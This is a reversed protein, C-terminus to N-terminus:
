WWCNCFWLFLFEWCGLFNDRTATFHTSSKPMCVSPADIETWNAYCEVYKRQKCSASAQQWSGFPSGRQFRRAKPGLWDKLLANFLVDLFDSCIQRLVGPTDTWDEDVEADLVHKAAVASRREDNLTAHLTNQVNGRSAVQDPTLGTTEIMSWDKVWWIVHIKRPSWAESCHQGLLVPRAFTGSGLALGASASSGKIEVLEHQIETRIEIRFSEITDKMKFMGCHFIM